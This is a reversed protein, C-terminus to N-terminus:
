SASIIRIELRSPVDIEAIVAHLLNHLVILFHDVSQLRLTMLGVM